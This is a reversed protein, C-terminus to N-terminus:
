SVSIWRLNLYSTLMNGIKGLHGTSICHLNTVGCKVGIVKSQEM